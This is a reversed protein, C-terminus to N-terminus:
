PVPWGCTPPNHNSPEAAGPGEGLASRDRLATSCRWPWWPQPDRLKRLAEGLGTLDRQSPGLPM